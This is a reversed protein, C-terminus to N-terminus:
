LAIESKLPVVVEVVNLEKKLREALEAPILLSGPLYL